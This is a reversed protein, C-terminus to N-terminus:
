PTHTEDPLAHILGMLDGGALAAFLSIEAAWAIAPQATSARWLVYAAVIQKGTLHTPNYQPIEAATALRDLLSILTADVERRTEDRADAVAAAILADVAAQQGATMENYGFHERAIDTLWETLAPPDGAPHGGRKCREVVGEARATYIRQRSVPHVGDYTLSFAM